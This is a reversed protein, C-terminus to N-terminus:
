WVYLVQRWQESQIHNSASHGDHNNDFSIYEVYVQFGRLRASCSILFYYYDERLYRNNSAITWSLGICQLPVRIFPESKSFALSPQQYAKFIAVFFILSLPTILRTHFHARHNTIIASNCLFLQLTELINLKLRPTMLPHISILELNNSLALQYLAKSYVSIDSFM